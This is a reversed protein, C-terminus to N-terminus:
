LSRRDRPEDGFIADGLCQMKRCRVFDLEAPDFRVRAPKRRARIDARWPGFEIVPVKHAVIDILYHLATRLFARKEVAGFALLDDVRITKRTVALRGLGTDPGARIPTRNMYEAHAPTVGLMASAVFLGDEYRLLIGIRADCIRTANILITDFVPKLEGPTSSIVQLVESTATQQELAEALDRTRKQVEEVLRVNETAIIAQREIALDLERRLGANEQKLDIKAVSPQRKAARKRKALPKRAAPPKRITTGRKAM